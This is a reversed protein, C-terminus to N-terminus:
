RPNNLRVQRRQKRVAPVGAVLTDAEVSRTVCAGAAIVARRGINLPEAKTGNVFNAGTGIFVGEDIRVNGPIHAGPSVTTFDGISVDHSLTCGINVQVHRGIQVNITAIAGAALISGEGIKIDNSIIASPHVLTAAQLGMMQCMTVLRRRHEPDGVAVIYHTLDKSLENLSVVPIGDIVSVNLFQPEVAFTLSVANGYLDRALWAAERGAGGAGVILLEDLPEPERM